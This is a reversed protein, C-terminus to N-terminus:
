STRLWQQLSLCLVFPVSPLLRLLCLACFASFVCPLLCLPCPAPLGPAQPLPHSGACLLHSWHLRHHGHHHRLGQPGAAVWHPPHGRLWLLSHRQCLQHLSAPRGGQAGAAAQNHGSLVTYLVGAPVDPRDTVQTMAPLVTYLVCAHLGARILMVADHRNGPATEICCAQM